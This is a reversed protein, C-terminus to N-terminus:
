KSKATAALQAIVGLLFMYTKESALKKNNTLRSLEGPDKGAKRAVERLGYFRIAASLNSDEEIVKRIYQM